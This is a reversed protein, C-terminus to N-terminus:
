KVMSTQILFDSVNQTFSLSVYDTWAYEEGAKRKKLEMNEEQLNCEILRSSLWNERIDM